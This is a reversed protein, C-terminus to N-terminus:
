PEPFPLVRAPTVAGLKVLVRRRQAALRDADFVADAQDVLSARLAELDGALARVRADCAACWTLHRDLTDDGVSPEVYRALLRDDDPHWDASIV